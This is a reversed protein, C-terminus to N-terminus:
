WGACITCQAVMEARTARPTVAGTADCRAFVRVVVAVRHALLLDVPKAGERYVKLVADCHVKAGAFIRVRQPTTHPAQPDKIVLVISRYDAAGVHSVVLNDKVAALPADREDFRIAAAHMGTPLRAHQPTAESEVAAVASTCRKQM